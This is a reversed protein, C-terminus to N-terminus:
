YCKLSNQDVSDYIFEPHVLISLQEWSNNKNQKATEM